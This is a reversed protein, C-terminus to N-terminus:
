KKIPIPTHTGIETLDPMPATFIPHYGPCIGGYHYVACSATPLRPVTVWGKSSLTTVSDIKPSPIVADSPTLRGASLPEAKNVKTLKYWDTWGEGSKFRIHGSEPIIQITVDTEIGSKETPATAIADWGREIKISGTIGQAGVWTSCLLLAIILTYKM